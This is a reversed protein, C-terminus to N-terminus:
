PLALEGQLQPESSPSAIPDRHREAYPVASTSTSPPRKKRRQDQAGADDSNHGLSVLSLKATKQLKGLSRYRSADLGAHMGNHRRRISRSQCCQQRAVDRIRQALPRLAPGHTKADIIHTINLETM